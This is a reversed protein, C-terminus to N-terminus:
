QSEYKLGKIFERYEGPNSVPFNTFTIQKNEFISRTLHYVTEKMITGINFATIDVQKKMNEFKNIDLLSINTKIEVKLKEISEIFNNFDLYNGLAAFFGITVSERGLFELGKEDFNSCFLDDLFKFFNVLAKINNDESIILKIIQYDLYNTQLDVLSKQDIVFPEKKELAIIADLFLTFHIDYKRKKSYFSRTSIDKAYIICSYDKKCKTQDFDYNCQEDSYQRINMSTLFILELQHKLDMSKHGANLLIMKEIQQVKNLNSWIEFWQYYNRFDEITLAKEKAKLIYSSETMYEDKHNKKFYTRLKFNSLGSIELKKDDLFKSAEYLKKLRITRQLGDLINFQGNEIQNTEELNIPTKLVLVIPPIFKNDKVSDVITDLFVNNVFGRQIDYQNYEESISDLYDLLSAGCFYCVGGDNEEKKTFYTIDMM